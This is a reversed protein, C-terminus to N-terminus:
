IKFLKIIKDKLRRGVSVGKEDDNMEMTRIPHGAELHAKARTLTDVEIQMKKDARAAKIAKELKKENRKM